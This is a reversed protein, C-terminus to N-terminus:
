SGQVAYFQCIRRKAVFRGVMENYSFANLIDNLFFIAFTFFNSIELNIALIGTERSNGLNGFWQHSIEHSIVTAVRQKNIASNENENFLLGTERFTILGWNEMAGSVFDPIAILDAFLGFLFKLDIM